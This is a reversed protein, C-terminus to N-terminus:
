LNKFKHDLFDKESYIGIGQNVDGKAYFTIHPFPVLLKIGYYKMIDEYFSILEPLQIIQVLSDRTHDEYIKQIHYMETNLVYKWKYKDTFNILDTESLNKRVIADLLLLGTQNGVLTIHFEKKKFFYNKEGYQFIEKPIQPGIVKLLLTQKKPYFELKM